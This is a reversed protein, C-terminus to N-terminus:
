KSVKYHTRGGVDYRKVNWFHSYHKSEAAEGCQKRSQRLTLGDHEAQQVAQEATMPTRTDVIAAFWEGWPQSRDGHAITKACKRPSNDCGLADSPETQVSTQQPQSQQQQPQAKNKAEIEPRMASWKVAEKKVLAPHAEANSIGAKKLLRPHAAAWAMAASEEADGDEKLSSSPGPSPKAHPHDKADAEADAKAKM